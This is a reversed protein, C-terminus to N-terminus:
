DDGDAEEVSHWAHDDSASSDLQSQSENPDYYGPFVRLPGVFTVCDGESYSAGDGGYYRFETTYEGDAGYAVENCYNDGGCGYSDSTLQGGARVIRAFHGDADIEDDGVEVYSVDVDTEDVTWDSIANIQPNGAFTGVEDVEFSVRDGVTPEPSVGDGLRVYMGAESDGVWFFSDSVHEVATVVASDVTIPPDVDFTPNDDVDAEALEDELFDVLEGLGADDGFPASTPVGGSNSADSDAGIQGFFDEDVECAFAEVCEGEDCYEGAECDADVDCEPAVIWEGNECILDGEEAGEEGCPEGEEAPADVCENDACMEYDACDDGETAVTCEPDVWEGDDCLLGNEEAGEEGCPEGEEAPADVCLEYECIEYDECDEDVSEEACEPDPEVWEGGECRLGEETAGEEGCPEGEEAPADVCENDDCLEYNECDEQETAETCEPDIWTGDKCLLEDEMEGDEGCPEGEEAPADVCENDACMEYDACDEAVTEETCEPDIWEGGDCM